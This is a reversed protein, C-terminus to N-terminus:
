SIEGFIAYMESMQPFFDCLAVTLNFKGQVTAKTCQKFASKCGM